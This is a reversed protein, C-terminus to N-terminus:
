FYNKREKSHRKIMVLQIVAYVYHAWVGTLMIILTIIMWIPAVPTWLERTPREALYYQKPIGWSISSKGKVTGFLDNEEIMGLITINGLSDGVFSGPYEISGGGDDDLTIEGIKMNSLMMPIYVGVTEKPLPKEENNAGIQSAKVHITRISDVKSFTIVIRARKFAVNQSVALYKGKGPFSATYTTKGEKDMPLGSKTFVKLVSTGTYDARIKGLIRNENDNSATFEIEANELAFNGTERRAFLNATLIVSDNSTCLYVLTMTPTIETLSDTKEQGLVMMQNCVLLLLLIFFITKQITKM